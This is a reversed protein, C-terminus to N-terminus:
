RRKAFGKTLAVLSALQAKVLNLRAQPVLRLLVVKQSEM